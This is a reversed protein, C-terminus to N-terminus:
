RAGGTQVYREAAERAARMEDATEAGCVSYLRDTMVEDWSGASIDARTDDSLSGVHTKISEINM